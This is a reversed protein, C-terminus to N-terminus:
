WEVFEFANKIVSIESGLISVVDFRVETEYSFHHSSMYFLASSIIKKQKYTTVAEEPLGAEVTKRYKVECFVLYNGDKAIIDIEGFKCNFNLELIKYGQANLFAAAHVEWRHGVKRKNM